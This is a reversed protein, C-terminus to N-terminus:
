CAPLGMPFQMRGLTDLLLTFSMGSSSALRNSVKFLRFGRMFPETGTAFAGSSFFNSSALELVYLHHRIRFDPNAFVWCQSQWSLDFVYASENIVDQCHLVTRCSRRESAACKSRRSSYRFANRFAPVATVRSAPSSSSSSSSYRAGTQGVNGPCTACIERPKIELPWEQFRVRVPGVEGYRYFRFSSWPWQEPTEVLGRKVPNRHIYRLKEIRKRATWVNFDYFRKQWVRDPEHDIGSMAFPAILPAGVPNQHLRKSFREKIVKMVVSPDGVEPETILLHFHEPM